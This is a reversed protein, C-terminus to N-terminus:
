MQSRESWFTTFEHDLHTFVREVSAFHQDLRTLVQELNQPM